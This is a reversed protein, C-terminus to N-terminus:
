GAAALTGHWTELTRLSVHGRWPLDRVTGEAPTDPEGLHDLVAVAGPFTDSRTYTSRTIVTDLGAAAAAALGHASDEVAVCDEPRLKLDGLVKLYIDPAPKKRPVVDGAGIVEFWAEGDAGLGHRLLATVNGLTTTTAIALRVGADRAEHLLRRVGPRLAIAGQSVLTEYHASKRRHIDAVRTQTWPRSAGDPDVSRWHHLIREKGGTVSLLRCYTADDWRWDLGLDAFARNFAVRHGDRETEALTGDIDFILARLRPM